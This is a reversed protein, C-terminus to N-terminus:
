HLSAYMGGRGVEAAFENFDRAPRGLLRDVTDTVPTFAGDRTAADVHALVDIVPAPLGVELLAAATAAPDLDSYRIERGTAETLEAAVDFLTLARRGTVAYTQGDDVTALTAAAVDGIDRTDVFSVATSGLAALLEGRKAIGLTFQPNESINQNFWSSRIVTSRLPADIAAQEMAGNTGGDGPTAAMSSLLVVKGVGSAAALTLFEGLVAGPEPVAFPGVVFMAEIAEVTPAWTEPQQWDFTAPTAGSPVKDPHRAAGRVAHRDRLLSATVQRGTKGTAGIVLTNM